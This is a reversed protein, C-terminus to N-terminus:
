ESRSWEFRARCFEKGDGARRVFCYEQDDTEELFVAVDDNPLAESLFSLEIDKIESAELHEFSPFHM